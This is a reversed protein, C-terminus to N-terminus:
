QRCEGIFVEVTLGANPRMGRLRKRVTQSMDELIKETVADKMDPSLSYYDNMKQTLRTADTKTLM